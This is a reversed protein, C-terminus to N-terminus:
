QETNKRIEEDSDSNESDDVERYCLSGIRCLVALKSICQREDNQRRICSLLRPFRRPSHKESNQM